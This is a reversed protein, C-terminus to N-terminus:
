GPLCVLLVDKNAFLLLLFFGAQLSLQISFCSVNVTKIVEDSGELPIEQVIDIGIPMQRRALILLRTAIAYLLLPLPAVIVLLIIAVIRHWLFVDSSCLVSPEAALM